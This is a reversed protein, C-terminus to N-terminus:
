NNMKSSGEPNPYFVDGKFAIAFIRPRKDSLASQSNKEEVNTLHSWSLASQINKEFHTLPYHSVEM